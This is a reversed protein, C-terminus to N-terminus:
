PRTVQVTTATEVTSEDGAAAGAGMVAITMGTNLTMTSNMPAVNKLDVNTTGNGTSTFSRVKASMGAPMQATHIVDNAALQILAVGLTAQPGSRSKLTYIASQLIDAGGTNIRSVVQWRAGEGVAESPLPTVMSEFSQTMGGMIQQAAPPVTPPIDLKVDHVHGKPNMWYTMGLGKLADIQPRLAKAMQEQQAGSPDVSTASLRSDIKFEGATSKDAVSTDFIMTMRPMPMQPASQGKTKVSVAMDMAMAMKPSAGKALTYSLDSRPEAGAELLKVIPPQGQALVKDAAGPPLVGNAPHPITVEPNAAPRREEVFPRDAEPAIPVDITTCAALPLAFVLVSLLSRRM